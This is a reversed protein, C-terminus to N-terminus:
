ALLQKVAELLTRQDFSSKGLYADAGAELGRMRDEEKELATVLVVPLHKLQASARIARCLAFGDMRPMEVDTVVLDYQQEQLAAWAAAGDVATAVLYGAGSLVSQELTRTTISDDVVLIRAASAASDAAARTLGRSRAGLAAAVVSQPNIVLAIRGGPLIAVGSLHPTKAGPLGHPRLVIEDERLFDDVTVAVRRSQATIVVAATVDDMHRDPLPPGLIGALSVIRVPEAGDGRLLVVDAGEARRLDRPSVRAVREVSATPIAVIQGGIRAMLARVTILTLPARLTFTTGRGAEFEVDVTGRIREVAERVLDLGVGRGSIATVRERTSVGSEFIGAVVADDSEPVPRGARAMSARIAALDLGAGDDAVTVCVHPGDVRAEIVVTAQAPKRRAIREAPREVGHDVANRVLHLLAERLGDVVARDAHVEGSMIELRVDKSMELALDRVVRPLAACADAFPRLRLDHTASAVEDGAQALRRLEAAIRVPSGDGRDRSGGSRSEAERGAAAVGDIAIHLQEVAALLTDLKRQDVRLQKDDPRDARPASDGGSALEDQASAPVPPPLPVSPPSAETVAPPQAIDRLGAFIQSGPNEGARMHQGAEALADATAFLLQFHAPGLTMAGGRAPALMTELAHCAEEISSVGVARAAGKLTHAVRFLSRLREADDARAELALLDANMVALQEDLEALFTARLRESLTAAKM